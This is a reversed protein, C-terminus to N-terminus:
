AHRKNTRVQRGYAAAARKLERKAVEIRQRALIEGTSPEPKTRNACAMAYALADFARSHDRSARELKEWALALKEQKTM